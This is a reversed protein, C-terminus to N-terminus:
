KLNLKKLDKERIIKCTRVRFKGDTAMPIAAIDKTTFEAVLIKYGTKWEKICWDLTALSIGEACQRSEDTCANKVSYTKGIKYTTGPYYPGTYKDTVLKQQLM